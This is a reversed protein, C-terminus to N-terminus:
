GCATIREDTEFLRKRENVFSFQCLGVSSFQMVRLFSVARMDVCMYMSLVISERLELFLFESERVCM